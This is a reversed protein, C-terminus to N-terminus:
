FSSSIRVEGVFAGLNESPTTVMDKIAWLTALALGVVAATLVVWDVTVAGCEDLFFRRLAALPISPM